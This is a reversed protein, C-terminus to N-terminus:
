VSQASRTKIPTRGGHLAFEGRPGAPIELVFVRWGISALWKGVDYGEHDHLPLSPRGWPCDRNAVGTAKDTPPLYATITPNHINTVTHEHAANETVVEHQTAADAALSGAPWIPIVQTGAGVGADFM